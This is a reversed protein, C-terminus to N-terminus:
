TLMINNQCLKICQFIIKYVMTSSFLTRSKNPEIDINFHYHFYIENNNRKYKYKLNKRLNHFVKVTNLISFRHNVRRLLTTHKVLLIIENNYIHFLIRKGFRQRSALLFIDTGLNEECIKREICYSRMKEEWIHFISNNVTTEIFIYIYM